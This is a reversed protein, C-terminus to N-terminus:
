IRLRIGAKAIKKVLLALVLAFGLAYLV